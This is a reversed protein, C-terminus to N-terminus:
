EGWKLIKIDKRQIGFKMADRYNDTFLDVCIEKNNSRLAGGTDQIEVTGYDPVELITGYPIKKPDSAAIGKGVQFGRSTKNPNGEAQQGDQNDLPSYQTLKARITRLEENEEQLITTDKELINIQEKLNGELEEYHTVLNEYNKKLRKLKNIHEEQEQIEVQLQEIREKNSSVRTVAGIIVIVLLTILLLKDYRGRNM